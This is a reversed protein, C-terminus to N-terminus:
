SSSTEHEQSKTRRDANRHLNQNIAHIDNVTRCRNMIRQTKNHQNKTTQQTEDESMILNAERFNLYVHGNVDTKIPLIETCVNRKSLNDHNSIIQPSSLIVTTNTIISPSPSPSRSRSDTKNEENLDDADGDCVSYVNEEANINRQRHKKRKNRMYFPDRESAKIYQQLPRNVGWKPRDEIKMPEKGGDKTDCNRNIAATTCDKENCKTKLHNIAVTKVDDACNSSLDIDKVIVHHHHCQHYRCQFCYEFEFKKDTQTSADLMASKPRVIENNANNTQEENETDNEMNSDIFPITSSEIIDIKENETKESSFNEEISNTSQSTTYHNNCQKCVNQLKADDENSVNEEISKMTDTSIVNKVNDSTQNHAISNLQQMQHALMVALQISNTNITNLNQNLNIIDNPTIPMIPPLTQLVLAIGDINNNDSASASVDKGSLNSTEKNTISSSSKLSKNLTKKKMKIPTGILIKEGDDDDDEDGYDEITVNEMSNNEVIATNVVTEYNTLLPTTSQEISQKIETPSLEDRESELKKASHEKSDDSSSDMNQIHLLRKKSKEYEAEQRAKEIAIRMMEQKRNQQMIKERFRKREEEARQENSEIQQRMTEEYRREELMSREQEMRKMREREEVQAKIAEQFELAKM